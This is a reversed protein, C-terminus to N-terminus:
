AIIGPVLDPRVLVIALDVAGPVDRLSRYAKRGLVEPASPHIPYLPGPFGADVM